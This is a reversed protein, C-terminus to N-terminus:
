TSKGCGLNPHRWRYRRRCAGGCGRCGSRLVRSDHRRRTGRGARPSRADIGNVQDRDVLVVLGDSGTTALFRGDPSTALPAYQSQQGATDPNDVHIPAAFYPWVVLGDLLSRMADISPPIDERDLYDVAEVAILLGLDLQEQERSEQPLWLLATTALGSSFTVASAREQQNREERSWLFFFILIMAALPVIRFLGQRM